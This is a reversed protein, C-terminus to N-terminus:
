RKGLLGDVGSLEGIRSYFLVEKDVVRNLRGEGDGKINNDDFNKKRLRHIRALTWTNTGRCM